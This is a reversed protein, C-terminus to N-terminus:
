LGCEPCKEIGKLDYGCAVCLGRKKRRKRKVFGPASWLLLALTGYSATNVAFAGLFPM